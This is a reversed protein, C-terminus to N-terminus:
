REHHSRLWPELADIGAATARIRTRLAEARTSEGAEDLRGAMRAAVRQLFFRSEARPQRGIADLLREAFADAVALSPLSSLPPVAAEFHLLSFGDQRLLTADEVCLVAVAEEVNGDRLSLGCWPMAILSSNATVQGTRVKEIAEAFDVRLSATAEGATVAVALLAGDLTVDFSRDRARLRSLLEPAIRAAMSLLRPLHEARQDLALATSRDALLIGLLRRVVEAHGFAHATWLADLLTQDTLESSLLRRHLLEHFDIDAAALGLQKAAWLISLAHTDNPSARFRAIAERVEADVDGKLSIARLWGRHLDTSGIRQGPQLQGIARALPAAAEKAFGLIEGPTNAQDATPPAPLPPELDRHFRAPDHRRHSSRVSSLAVIIRSDRREERALARTIERERDAPDSLQIALRAREVTTQGVRDDTRDLIALAEDLRGRSLLLEVFRSSQFPYITTAKAAWAAYVALMDEPRGITELLGTVQNQLSLNESQAIAVETLVTAGTEIDGNAIALLGVLVSRAPTRRARDSAAGIRELLSSRESPSTHEVLYNAFEMWAYDLTTAAGLDAALEEIAAARAAPEDAIRLDLLRRATNDADARLLWAAVAGLVDKELRASTAVRTLWNREGIAVKDRSLGAILRKALEGELRGESVTQLIATRSESGLPRTAARLLREADDTPLLDLHRCRSALLYPSQVKELAIEALPALEADPVTGRLKDLVNSAANPDKVERALDVIRRASQLRLESDAADIRDLAALVRQLRQAPAVTASWARDLADRRAGADDFDRGVLAAVGALDVPTAKADSRGREVAADFISQALDIREVAVLLRAIAAVNSGGEATAAAVVDQPRGALLLARVRELPFKSAVEDPLELVRTIEGRALADRLMAQKVPVSVESQRLAADELERARASAIPDSLSDGLSRLRGALSVTAAGSLPERGDARALIADRLPTLQEHSDATRVAHGLVTDVTPLSDAVNRSFTRSPAEKSPLTEGRTLEVAVGLFIARAEDRGGRLEALRAVDLRAALDNPDRRLIRRLVREADLPRDASEFATAIRREVAAFEPALRARLFAREAAAVDGARLMTEGIELFVAPPAEEGIMLLARAHRLYRPWDRAGSAEDMAERLWASRQQGAVLITSELSNRRADADGLQELLDQLARQLYVRDPELAIRRRLARAAYRLTSAEAGLNLLGDVAVLFLDAPVASSLLIACTGVAEASKGQDRMANAWLLLTEIRTGDSAFARRYLRAAEAPRGAMGLIGAAFELTAGDPKADRTLLARVIARAEGARGRELFSLVLQQRYDLENQPDITVLHELAREQGAFDDTELCAQAIAQWADIAHEPSEKAWALLVDRAGFGDMARVWIRVLAERKTDRDPTAPDAVAAELEIALDALTGSRSALDLVREQAQSRRAASGATLWVERFLDISEKRETEDRSNSLLWALRLSVDETPKERRVQRLLEIAEATRGVSELAGALRLQSEPQAVRTRAALLRESAESDRRDKRLMAVEALLGDLRLSESESAATIAVGHAVAPEDGLESATAILTLLERPSATPMRDVLLARADAPRDLDTYLLALAGRLLADSPDRALLTQAAAIAPETRGCEVCLRMAEGLMESDAQVRDSALTSVALDGDGLRRIADFMALLDADGDARPTARCQAVFERLEAADTALDLVRAYAFSRERQLPACEAARRYEDRAENNRGALSLWRGRRLHVNARASDNAAYEPRHHRLAFDVQGFDGALHGLAHHFNPDDGTQVAADLNTLTGAEDGLAFHLEAAHVLLAAREPDDSPTTELLGRLGRLAEENRGLAELAVVHMARLSSDLRGAETCLRDVEVLDGAAIALRIRDERPAGAYTKRLADLDGGTRLTTEIRSDLDDPPVEQASVASVACLVGLAAAAPSRGRGPWRRALLHLAMACLGVLALQPGIPVRSTRTRTPSSPLEGVITGGSRTALDALAPSRDDLRDTRPRPRVAAGLAIGDVELLCPSDSPWPATARWGGDTMRQMGMRVERQADRDSAPAVVRLTAATRDSSQYLTANLEGRSTTVVLGPRAARRGRSLARMQDAILDSWATSRISDTMPGLLETALTAVRGRGQDWAALVSSGDGARLLEEAASKAHAEVLGGLVHDDGRALSVVSERRMPADIAIPEERLSPLLTTQPEKFRLDPLQFRSPCAYFRGGGWQALDMLFQSQSQPGILVTSLQINSDAMRRALAEFPGSEVGGDTLVLVHRFRTRADLLAYYSEELASYIVTGGGAQMRDLARMLEISNSAPQLPAAWRKSGYFEVIGAKDHPLLRRLALRAVEKALDIRAGMSGSTDIVVVLAVSPDRREERQPMDVPLLEALPSDAYGGPGLNDHAGALLLGLGDRTILEAVVSQMSRPWAAAPLDDIIACEVTALTTSAENPDARLVHIGHPALTDRVAEFNGDGRGLWAVRIGEDVLVAGHEGRTSAADSTFRVLFQWPGAALPPVVDITVECDGATVTHTARAFSQNTAADIVEIELDRASPSAVLVRIAFPDAAHVLCPHDISRIVPQTRDPAAVRTHLTISRSRLCAALADIAEPTLGSGSDGGSGVLAIQGGDPCLAIAQNLARGLDPDGDARAVELRGHAGVVDVAGTRVVHFRDRSPTASRWQHALTPDAGTDLFVRVPRGPAEIWPAALAFVVAIWAISVTLLAFSRATRNEIRRAGRRHAFVLPVLLILLWLALPREFIM